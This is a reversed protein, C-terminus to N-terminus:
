LWDGPKFDNNKVYMYVVIWSGFSFIITGIIEMWENKENHRRVEKFGLYALFYGIWYLITIIYAM